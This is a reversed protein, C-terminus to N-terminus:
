CKAAICPILMSSFGSMTAHLIIAYVRVLRLIGLLSSTTTKTM